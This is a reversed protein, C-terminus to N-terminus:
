VDAFNGRGAQAHVIADLAKRADQYGPEGQAATKLIKDEISAPDIRKGDKDTFLAQLKKDDSKAASEFVSDAYDAQAITNFDGTMNGITLKMDGNTSDWASGVTSNIM